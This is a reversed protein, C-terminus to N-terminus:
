LRVIFVTLFGFAAIFVAVLRVSYRNASCFNLEATNYAVNFFLQYGALNLTEEGLRKLYLPLVCNCKFVDQKGM